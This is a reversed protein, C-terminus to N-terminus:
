RGRASGLFQEVYRIAEGTKVQQSPFRLVTWGLRQAENYKECDGAFGSGRVHRGGTYTGGEIEVAVQRGFVVFDFRWRRDPHFRIERAYPIKHARLQLAFAEEM